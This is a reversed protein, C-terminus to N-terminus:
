LKRDVFDLYKIPVLDEEKSDVGFATLFIVRAHTSDKAYSFVKVLRGKHKGDVVKYKTGCIPTRKATREREEPTRSSTRGM